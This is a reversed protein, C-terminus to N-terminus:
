ASAQYAAIVEDTPGDLRLRGQELWLTRSCFRQVTEMSHSVLVLLSANAVMDDLRRQAKEQFRHDGAAVIEDLLLIDVDIATSIAFALRLVMGMSYKKVPRGLANGLETFDAIAQTKARIERPSMGLLLGRTTINEWGSAEMEFGTALEFLCAIEGDAVARGQTPAYIGCMPKLLTTKGAGNLGIVGVREGREIRLSIGDLALIDGGAGQPSRGLMEGIRDRLSRPGGARFELSLNDLLIM